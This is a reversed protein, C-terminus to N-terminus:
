TVAMRKKLMLICNRVAAFHFKETQWLGSAIGNAANVIQNWWTAPQKDAIQQIKEVSCSTIKAIVAVDIGEWLMYQYRMTEDSTFAHEAKEVNKMVTNNM